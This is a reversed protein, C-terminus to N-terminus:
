QDDGYAPAVVIRNAESLAEAFRELADHDFGIGGQMLYENILKLAELADKNQITVETKM